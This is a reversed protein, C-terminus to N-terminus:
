QCQCFGAVCKETSSGSCSCHYSSTCQYAVCLGQQCTWGYQSYGFATGNHCQSDATCPCDATGKTCTPAPPLDPESLCASALVALGAAWAAIRLHALIRM